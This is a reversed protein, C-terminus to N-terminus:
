TKSVTKPKLSAQHAAEGIVKASGVCKSKEPMAWSWLATDSIPLVLVFHEVIALAMFSALLVHGVRIYPESADYAGIVLLAFVVSAMVVAFAFFPSTRTTNFYTKLHAIPKPMLDSMANRAGLFIILKASIRMVWLLVFTWLGFPNAADLMLWYLLLVTFLIAVEHNCIAEWAAKFRGWQNLNQPCDGKRPGTILGSLFSAEHWAWLLLAGFFGMYSGLPTLMHKSYSLAVVGVIAVASMFSMMAVINGGGEGETRRVAFLVLGTSIWWVAVAVAIVVMPHSLSM